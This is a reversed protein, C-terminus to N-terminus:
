SFCGEVFNKLIQLGVAQSKEPHFQVGFCHGRGIVSAYPEGYETRALVDRPEAPDCYYSHNFYAYCGTELGSLLPIDEQFLLQNWGTQPIKLGKATFRRVAGPLVGLGVHQGLEESVEFLLQM